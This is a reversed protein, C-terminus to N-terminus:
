WQNGIGNYSIKRRNVGGDVYLIRDADETYKSGMGWQGAYTPTDTIRMYQAYNYTTAWIIPSSSNGAVDVIGTATIEGGSITGACTISTSSATGVTIASSCNLYTSYITAFRSSAGGLYYSGNADLAMSSKLTVTGDLNIAGNSTITGSSTFTQGGALSMSDKFAASGNVTATSNFTITSFAASGTLAASGNAIISGEVDVDDAVRTYGMFNKRDMLYINSYTAAAYDFKLLARSIEGNYYGHKLTDYTPAVLSLSLTQTGGACDLYLYWTNDSGPTAITTNADFLYIVGDVDLHSGITIVLPGAGGAYDTLEVLFVGTKMINRIIVENKWDTTSNYTANTYSTFAM